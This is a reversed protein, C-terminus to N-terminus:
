PPSIMYNKTMFALGYLIGPFSIFFSTVLFDAQIHCIEQTIHRSDGAVDSQREIENKNVSGVHIIHFSDFCWWIYMSLPDDNESASYCIDFSREIWIENSYLWNNQLLSLIFDINYISLMSTYDRPSRSRNHIGHSRCINMLMSLEFLLDVVACENNKTWIIAEGFKLTVHWSIFLYIFLYIKILKKKTYINYLHYPCYCHIYWLSFRSHSFWYLHQIFSPTRARVLESALIRCSFKLSSIM